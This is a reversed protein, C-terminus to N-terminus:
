SIKKITKEKESKIDVLEKIRKKRDRQLSEILKQQLTGDALEKKRKKEMGALKGTPISNGPPPPIKGRKNKKNKTKIFLYFIFIHIYTSHVYMYIKTEKSALCPWPRPWPQPIYEGDGVGITLPSFIFNGSGEGNRIYEPIGKRM